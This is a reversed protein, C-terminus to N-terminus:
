WWFQIEYSHRLNV